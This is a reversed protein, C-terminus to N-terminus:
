GTKCALKAVVERTAARVSNLVNAERRIAASIAKGFQNKGGRYDTVRKGYDRLVHDVRAISSPTPEGRTNSGYVQAAIFKRAMGWDALDLIHDAEADQISRKVLTFKM